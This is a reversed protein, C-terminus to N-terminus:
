VLRQASEHSREDMQAPAMPHKRPWTKEAALKDRLGPELVDGPHRLGPDLRGALIPSVAKGQREAIHQPAGGALEERGAPLAVDVLAKEDHHVGIVVVQREMERM